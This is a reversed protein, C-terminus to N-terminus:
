ELTFTVRYGVGCNYDSTVTDFSIEVTVEACEDAGDPLAVDYILASDGTLDEYNYPDCHDDEPTVSGTSSREDDLLVQEAGTSDVYSVKIHFTDVESSVAEIYGEAKIHLNTFNKPCFHTTASADCPTEGHHHHSFSSSIIEEPAEESTDESMCLKVQQWAGEAPAEVVASGTLEWDPDPTECTSSYPYVWAEINTLVDEFQNITHAYMKPGEACIESQCTLVHWPLKCEDTLCGPSDNGGPNMTWVIDCWSAPCHDPIYEPDVGESGTGNKLIMGKRAGCNNPCALIQDVREKMADFWKARIPWTFVGKMERQALKMFGARSNPGEAMPVIGYHCLLGGDEECRKSTIWDATDTGPEGNWGIIYWDKAYAAPIIKQGYDLREPWDPVEITQCSCRWEPEEVETLYYFPGDHVQFLTKCWCDDENHLFYLDGSEALNSLPEELRLATAGGEVGTMMRQERIEPAEGDDDTVSPDSIEFELTFKIDPTETLPFPTTMDTLLPVYDPTGMRGALEDILQALDRTEKWTIQQGASAPM